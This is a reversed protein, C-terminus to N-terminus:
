RAGLMKHVQPIILVRNLSKLAREQLKLLEEPDINLRTSGPRTEPQIVFPIDFSIDKMLRIARDFEAINLRRSVVVKVFFEKRFAVKLFQGHEQWCPRDQNVSPLKIDVAIRDIYGIVRELESTLTGNTELYVKYGKDALEPLLSELFIHHLLPEGGTIAVTNHIHDANLRGIQKLIDGIDTNLPKESKGVDCFACKLNCGHFRIFIQREGVCLGEGQVSSFVELIGARQGQGSQKQSM